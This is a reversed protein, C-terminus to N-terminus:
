DEPDDCINGETSNRHDLGGDSQEDLGNTVKRDSCAGFNEAPLKGASM